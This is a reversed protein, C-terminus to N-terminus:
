GIPTVGRRTTTLTALPAALGPDPRDAIVLVLADVDTEALGASATIQHKFDM